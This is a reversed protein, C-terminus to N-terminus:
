RRRKTGSRLVDPPEDARHWLGFTDPDGSEGGYPAVGDVFWDTVIVRKSEGRGRRSSSDDASKSLVFGEFVIEGHATSWEGHIPERGVLFQEFSGDGHLTVYAHDGTETTYRWTGELEAVAPVRDIAKPRDIGFCCCCGVLILVALLGGTALVTIEFMRRM